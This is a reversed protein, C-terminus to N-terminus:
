VEAIRHDPESAHRGAHRSRGDHAGQKEYLETSAAIETRTRKLTTMARIEPM